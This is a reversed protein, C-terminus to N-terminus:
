TGTTSTTGTFVATRIPVLIELPPPVLERESGASQLLRVRIAEPMVANTGTIQWSQQWNQGDSFDVEMSEVRPLLEQQASVTQISDLLNRTTARVLTGSDRSTTETGSTAADSIYYEVQQVDGYLEGDLDKGTTTTFRLFGPFRSSQGTQGGELVSAMEGGSIYANRLDDRIVNAARTRLRAQQLRANASDRMKVARQFVGYIAVLIMSSVVAAVLIELLTFGLARRM